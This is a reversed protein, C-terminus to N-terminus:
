SSLIEMEIPVLRLATSIKEIEQDFHQLIAQRNQQVDRTSGDADDRFILRCCEAISAADLGRGGLQTATALAVGNAESSGSMQYACALLRLAYPLLPSNLGSSLRLADTVAKLDVIAAEYDHEEIHLAGQLIRLMCDHRQVWPTSASSSARSEAIALLRKRFAELHATCLTTLSLLEHTVTGSTSAALRQVKAVSGQYWNWMAICSTLECTRLQEVRTATSSAKQLCSVGQGLFHENTAATGVICFLFGLLLRVDFHFSSSGKTFVKMYNSAEVIKEFAATLKLQVLNFRACECLGALKVATLLRIEANTTPSPAKSVSTLSKMRHEVFTQLEAFITEYTEQPSPAVNWRLLAFFHQLVELSDSPVAIPTRGSDAVAYDILTLLVSLDAPPTENSLSFLTQAEKLHAIADLWREAYTLTLAHCICLSLSIARLGPLSVLKKYPATAELLADRLNGQHAEELLLASFLTRSLELRLTAESLLDDSAIKALAEQFCRASRSYNGRRRHSVGVLRLVSSRTTSSTQPHDMLQVVSHAELVKRASDPHLHPSSLILDALRIRTAVEEEIMANTFLPLMAELMAISGIEDSNSALQEAYLWLEKVANVSLATPM